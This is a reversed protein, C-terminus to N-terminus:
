TCVESFNFTENPSGVCKRLPIKLNNGGRALHLVLISFLASWWPESNHFYPSPQIFLWTANDGAGDNAAPQAYAESM